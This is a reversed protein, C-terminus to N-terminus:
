KANYFKLNPYLTIINKKIKKARLEKLIQKSYMSTIIILKSNNLYRFLPLFISKELGYYKCGVKQPDKDVFLKILKLDLDFFNLFGIGFGGAGWIVIEDNKISEKIIFNNIKQKIKLLNNKFKRQLHLKKKFKLKNKGEFKKAFIILNEDSKTLSIIKLHNLSLLKEISSSNFYQIHQLSFVSPLGKKLFFDINPVELVLYGKDSLNQKVDKLFNKLNVIHELIHRAIIIDFKNNKYLNKTFFSRKIKLGKKIGISAGPSPDCGYVDFNKKLKNIIYGDFCGIELVKSNKKIINNKKKFIKLFNNDRIPDFGKKLASPYNYFKNYLESIVKMDPIEKLFTHSCDLCYWSNLKNFKKRNKLIFNLQSLKKKKLPSTFYPFRSNLFLKKIKHSKCVLCNNKNM